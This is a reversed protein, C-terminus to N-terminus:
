FLKNMTNYIQLGIAYFYVLAFCAIMLITAFRLKSPRKLAERRMREKEEIILDHTLMEFYVSQEDGRMVAQLGRVVKSIGPSNLRADFRILASEYNGTKMDALTTDLESMLEPGCVKRYSEFIKMVDRSRLLTQQITSSFLVLEAEIKERKKAIIQELSNIEKFYVLISTAICALSMFPFVFFMPISMAAVVAANAFARATFFEPTMYVQAANLSKQLSDRRANTLHIRPNLWETLPIVISETMGRPGNKQAQIARRAKKSPGHVFDLIINYMGYGFFIATILSLFFM